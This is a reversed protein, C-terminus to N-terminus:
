ELGSERDAFRPKKRLNKGIEATFAPTISATM